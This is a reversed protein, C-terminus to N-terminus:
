GINSNWHKGTRQIKKVGGTVTGGHAYKRMMGGGAKRKLLKKGPKSSFKTGYKKDIPKGAHKEFVKIRDKIAKDAKSLLGGAKRRPIMKKKMRISGFEVPTQKTKRGYYKTKGEQGTKINKTNTKAVNSQTVNVKRKKPPTVDWGFATQKKKLVGQKRLSKKVKAKRRQEAVKQDRMRARTDPRWWKKGTKGYGADVDTDTERIKTKAVKKGGKSIQENIHSRTIVM